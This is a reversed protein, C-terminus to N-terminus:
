CWIDTIHKHNTFFSLAKDNYSEYSIDSEAVPADKCEEKQYLLTTFITEFDSPNCNRKNGATYSNCATIKEVKEIKYGGITKAVIM